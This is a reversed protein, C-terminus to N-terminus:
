SQVLIFPTNCVGKMSDILSDVTPYRAEELNPNGTYISWGDKTKVLTLDSIKKVSSVYSLTTCSIKQSHTSSLEEELISAFEDKRFLYVGPPRSLLLQECEKRTLDHWAEHIIDQGPLHSLLTDLNTLSFEKLISPFSKLKPLFRSIFQMTKITEKLNFFAEAELEKWSFHKENVNSIDLSFSEQSITSPSFHFRICTWEKPDLPEAYNDFFRIEGKARHLFVLVSQTSKDVQSTNKHLQTVKKLIIKLIEVNKRITENQLTVTM